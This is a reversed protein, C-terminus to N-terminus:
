KESISKIHVDVKEIKTTGHKGAKPILLTMWGSEVKGVEYNSGVALKGSSVELVYIKGDYETTYLSYSLRTGFFARPQGPSIEEWSEIKSASIHIALKQAWVVSFLFLMSVILVMRRIM